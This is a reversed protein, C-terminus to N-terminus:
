GRPSCLQVADELNIKGEYIAKGIIAGILGEPELSMLHRIDELSAIGGSAIVPIDTIALLGRLGIMDPGTLAGDRVIDTYILCGLKLGALGKVFDVAKVMSQETWGRQAVFGNACDLSIAIKKKWLGLMELLFNHDSIVRTGLIVRAVGGDILRQIDERSRIGGGVQIPISVTKAIEIITDRNHMEGTKAGDLDVVHLWQAGQQQWKQAVVLPDGSYETVEDFKGQFLRVVKGDKIDIAPFIIM